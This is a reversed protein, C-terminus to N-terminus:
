DRTALRERRYSRSATRLLMVAALWLAGGLALLLTADFLVLGAAQVVVLAVIPLAVIGILQSAESFTKVRPSAAVVMGLGIAAVAPAVWVVLVAWESNPFSPPIGYASLVANAVAGYAVAGVASVVTAVIWPALSKALLLERDTTPSNLLGDLTGRQREGVVSDAATLSAVMVPVLLYLPAFVYVLVLVVAQAAPRAPLQEVVGAPLRTVLTALAGALSAPATRVALLTLPPTLLLVIPVALAPVLVARSRVVIRLDRGAIALVAAWNARADPGSGDSASTSAAARWGGAPSM